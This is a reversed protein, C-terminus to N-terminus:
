ASQVDFPKRGSYIHYRELMEILVFVSTASFLAAVFYWLGYGKNLLFRILIYNNFLFLGLYPTIISWARFVKNYFDIHEEAMMFSNFIPVLYVVVFVLTYLVNEGITQKRIFPIRRKM